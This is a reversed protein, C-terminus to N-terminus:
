VCHEKTQGGFVIGCSHALVRLETRRSRPTADRVVARASEARLAESGPYPHLTSLVDDTSVKGRALLTLDWENLCEQLDGGKM